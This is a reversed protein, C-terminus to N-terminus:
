GEFARGPTGVRPDLSEAAVHCRLRDVLDGVHRRSCGLVGAIEEHTMEDLYYYVAVEALPEPLRALLERLEASREGRPSPDEARPLARLIRARGDRNRLRNLCHHTTARYLWAIPRAVGDLQEPRRLLDLFVDHLADHAEADSRLLARARRLVVHGNQRYLREIDREASV